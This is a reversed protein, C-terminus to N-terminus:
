TWPWHCSSGQIPEPEPEPEPERCLVLLSSSHDNVDAAWVVQTLRLGPHPTLASVPDATATVTHEFQNDPSWSGLAPIPLRPALPLEPRLATLVIRSGRVVIDDCWVGCQQKDVGCRLCGCVIVVWRWRQNSDATGRGRSGAAVLGVPVPYTGQHGHNRKRLGDDGAEGKANNEIIILQNELRRGGRMRVAMLRKADKACNIRKRRFNHEHNRDDRCNQM